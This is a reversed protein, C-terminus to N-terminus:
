PRPHAAAREQVRGYIDATLTKACDSWAPPTPTSLSTKGTRIFDGQPDLHRSRMAEPTCANVSEAAVSIDVPRELWELVRVLEDVPRDCMREYSVVLTPRPNALWHLTHRRWYHIHRRFEHEFDAKVPQYTEHWAVFSLAAPIPDRVLHVASTWMWRDRRHTKVVLGRSPRNLITDTYISGTREGTAHELMDRLWTNGSRPFSALAVAKEGKLRDYGYRITDRGYTRVRRMYRSGFGPM